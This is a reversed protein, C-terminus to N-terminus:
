KGRGKINTLVNVRSSSSQEEIADLALKRVRWICVPSERSISKAKLAM